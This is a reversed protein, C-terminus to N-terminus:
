EKNLKFASKIGGTITNNKFDESDNSAILNLYAALAKENDNPTKGVVASVPPMEDANFTLNEMDNIVQDFQTNENINPIEGMALIMVALGVESASASSAYPDNTAFELSDDSKFDSKVAIKAINDAAAKGSEVVGNQVKSLLDAVGKESNINDLDSGALELIKTGMGSQEIALEVGVKQFAVRDKDSLNKDDLKSLIKEVLKGALAPNGIAKKKWAELNDGTLEIKNVDYERPEGWSTSFFDDCSGLVFVSLVALIWAGNTKKKIM